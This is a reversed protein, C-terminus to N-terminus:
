NLMDVTFLIRPKENKTYDYCLITDWDKVLFVINTKPHFDLLYKGELPMQHCVSLSEDFIMVKDDAKFVIKDECVIAHTGYNDTEYILQDGVFLRRKKDLDNGESDERSYAVIVPKGKFFGELGFNFDKKITETIKFKNGQRLIIAFSRQGTRIFLENNNKWRVRWGTKIGSPECTEGGDYSFGLEGGGLRDGESDSVLGALIKGDPSWSLSSLIKQSDDQVITTTPYKDRDAEVLKLKGNGYKYRRGFSGILRGDEGYIEEFTSYYLLDDYGPRWAMNGLVDDKLEHCSKLHSDEDLKLLVPRLDTVAPKSSGEYKLGVQVALVDGDPNLYSFWSLGPEKGIRDCGSLSVLFLGVLFLKCFRVM